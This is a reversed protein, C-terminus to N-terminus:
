KKKKSALAQSIVSERDGRSWAAQVQDDPLDAVRGLLLFAPLAHSLTKWRAMEALATLARNRLQDLASPDRNDTLIQLMQVAQNRDSWSLSNLMEIFWTPEIKIGSEPKVRALVALGRLGHAANYRVGADADKLAFQLDDVVDKKDEAYVMVYAAIARQEEDSSTRLVRRVEGLDHRIISIFEEQIDRTALNASLAHGQTMDEAVEGLRVATSNADLFRRYTTTVEEPLKADGDPPERVDFLPAGKEQLGIYLIMKTGDCCVAELHSEIVGPVSDIREEADGKSPPLPDGEKAGLAQRVRAEPIKGLGYFDIVGIRPPGQFIVQPQPTAQGSAVVSFVALSSVVLLNIRV